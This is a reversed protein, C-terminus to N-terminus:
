KGGNLLSEVLNLITGMLVAVNYLRLLVTAM